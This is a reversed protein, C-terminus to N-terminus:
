AQQSESAESIIKNILEAESTMRNAKARMVETLENIGTSALLLRRFGNQKNIVLIDKNLPGRCLNNLNLYQWDKVGIATDGVGDLTGVVAFTTNKYDPHYIIVQKGILTEYACYSM